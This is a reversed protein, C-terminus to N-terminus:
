ASLLNGSGPHTAGPPSTLEGPPPAGPPTLGRHGGLPPPGPAVTGGVHLLCSLQPSVRSLRSMPLSRPQPRRVASEVPETPSQSDTLILQQLRHLQLTKSSLQQSSNLQSPLSNPQPTHSSSRQHPKVPRDVTETPSPSDTLTPPVSQPAELRAALPQFAPSAAINRSHVRAAHEDAALVTRQSNDTVKDKDSAKVTSMLGLATFVLFKPLTSLRVSTRAHPSSGAAMNRAPVLWAPADAGELRRGRTLAM